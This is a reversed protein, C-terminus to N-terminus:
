QVEAEGQPTQPRTPESDAYLAKERPLQDFRTSVLLNVGKSTATLPPFTTCEVV